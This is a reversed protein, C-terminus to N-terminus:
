PHRNESSTTHIISHVSKFSPRRALQESSLTPMNEEEEEIDRSSSTSSTAAGITQSGEETTIEVHIGETPSEVSGSVQEIRLGSLNKKGDGKNEMRLTERTIIV